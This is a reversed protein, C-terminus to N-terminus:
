WILHLIQHTPPRTPLPSLFSCEALARKASSGIGSAAEAARTALAEPDDCQPDALFLGRMADADPVNGVPVMPCAPRLMLTGALSDPVVDAIGQNPVLSASDLVPMFVKLPVPTYPIPPKAMECNKKRRSEIREVQAPNSAVHDPFSKCYPSRYCKGKEHDYECFGDPCLQGDPLRGARKKGKDAETAAAAAKAAKRADKAAKKEIKKQKAAAAAAAEAAPVGSSSGAAAAAPPQMSYISLTMATTLATRYDAIPQWVPAAAGAPRAVRAAASAAKAAPCESLRVIESCERVVTTVTKLTDASKLRRLLMRGEAGNAAPMLRIIFKGLGEADFPRELHDAHVSILTNVKDAFDEASCGDPLTTDRMAEVARDHDRPDDLLGVDGHLASIKDLMQVGNYLDNIKNGDADKEPCAAQLATLRLKARPLMSTELVSGIQVRLNRLSEALQKERTTNTSKAKNVMREYKAIDLPQMKDKDEASLDAPVDDREELHIYAPPTQHRLIHSYGARKLAPLVIELWDSLEKESPEEGPFLPISSLGSGVSSKDNSVVGSADAGFAFNISM